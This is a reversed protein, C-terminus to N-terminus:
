DEVEIMNAVVIMAGGTVIFNVGIAIGLLIARGELIGAIIVLGLAVNVADGHIRVDRHHELLPGIGRRDPVRRLPSRIFPVLSSRTKSHFRFVIM